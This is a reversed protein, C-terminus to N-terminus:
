EFYPASILPLYGSVPTERCVNGMRPRPSAVKLPTLAAQRDGGASAKGGIEAAIILMKEDQHVLMGQSFFQAHDGSTAYIALQFELRGYVVCIRRCFSQAIL